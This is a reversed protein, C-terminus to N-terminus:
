ILKIAMFTDRTRLEPSSVALHCSKSFQKGDRTEPTAM